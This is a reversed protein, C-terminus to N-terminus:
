FPRYTDLPEHIVSVDRTLRVRSDAVSPPKAAKCECSNSELDNMRFHERNNSAQMSNKGWSRFSPTYDSLKMKTSGNMIYTRGYRWTPRWSTPRFNRHVFFQHITPMSSAAVGAFMEIQRNLTLAVVSNSIPCPLRCGCLSTALKGLLMPLSTKFCFAIICLFLLPPQLM